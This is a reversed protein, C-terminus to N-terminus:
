VLSVRSGIEEEVLWLERGKKPTPMFGRANKGERKKPQGERRSLRKCRVGVVEEPTTTRGTSMEYKDAVRAEGSNVARKIALISTAVCSGNM